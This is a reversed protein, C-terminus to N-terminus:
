PSGTALDGVRRGLAERYLAEYRRAARDWSFDAAMGAQQLRRWVLPDRFAALAKDVAALLALPSYAEFQFGTAVGERVAEPTADVVSDALGGTRRVVPVTGYRMSYLQNLGSPEFRSPMLFIDAGAEIHHALPEDFRLAAFVHRPHDRALQSFIAHYRAEGTGLLVFQAGREVLAPLVAAVLDGGKQDTLRSIMALLPAYPLPELGAEKQLARKCFRKGDLDDPGYPAPLHPDHRPDWQAYDVGNLVGYVDGRRSLLVGELGAGFEPTQIERAYTESVTNIVDAYVLGGKLCNVQGWFELGEPTFFEQPLGLLSFQAAPFIGQMAINHVTLLTPWAGQQRARERLRLYAPVMGTHWDNCHILDPDFVQAAVAVVAHSFFTFRGLNDPYDRGGEGYLGARDFLPACEVLYVPLGVPSRGELVAGEVVAEGLTIRLPFLPTLDASSIGRYRPLVLRVDHGLRALAAPLAGAVDALGGTKVYPVAESACYLVKVAM